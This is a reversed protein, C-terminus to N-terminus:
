ACTMVVAPLKLTVSYARRNVHGPDQATWIGLYHGANVRLIVTTGLSAPELVPWGVNVPSNLPFDVHTSHIVYGSHFPPGTHQLTLTM